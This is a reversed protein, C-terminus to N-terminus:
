IKDSGKELNAKEITTLEGESDVVGLVLRACVLAAEKNEAKIEVANFQSVPGTILWPEKGGKAFKEANEKSTTETMGYPVPTKADLVQGPIPTKNYLLLYEKSAM